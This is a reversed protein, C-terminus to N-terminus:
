SLLLAVCVYESSFIVINPTSQSMRTSMPTVGRISKLQIKCPKVVSFSYAQSEFFVPRKSSAVVISYDSPGSSPPYIISRFYKFTGEESVGVGRCYLMGGNWRKQM